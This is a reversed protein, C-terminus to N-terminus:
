WEGLENYLLINVNDGLPTNPKYGPVEGYLQSYKLNIYQPEGDEDTTTDGEEIFRYHTGYKLLKKMATQWGVSSFAGLVENTSNTKNEETLTALWMDLKNNYVSDYFTDAVQRPTMGRPLLEKPEDYKTINESDPIAM